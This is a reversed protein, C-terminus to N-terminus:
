IGVSKDRGIKRSVRRANFGAKKRYFCITDNLKLNDM